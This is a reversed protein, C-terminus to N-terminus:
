KHCMNKCDNILAHYEKKTMRAAKLGLGPTKVINKISQAVECRNLHNLWDCKKCVLNDFFNHVDNPISPYLKRNSKCPTPNPTPNNIIQGINPVIAPSPPPNEGGILLGDGRMMRSLLYGLVFAILCMLMSDKSM